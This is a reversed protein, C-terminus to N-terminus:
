HGLRKLLELASAKADPDAGQAALKL